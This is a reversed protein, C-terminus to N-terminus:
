NTDETHRADANDENLSESEAAIMHDIVDGVMKSEPYVGAIWLPFARRLQEHPSLEATAIRDYTTDRQYEFLAM